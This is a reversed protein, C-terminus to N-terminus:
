TDNSAPASIRANVNEFIEPMISSRFLKAPFTEICLSNIVNSIFIVPIAIKVSNATLMQLSEPSDAMALLISIPPFTIITENDTGMM